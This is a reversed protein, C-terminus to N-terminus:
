DDCVDVIRSTFQSTTPQEDAMADCLADFTSGIEDNIRGREGTGIWELYNMTSQGLWANDSVARVAPFELWVEYHAVAADRVRNLDGLDSELLVQSRLSTVLPRTTSWVEGAFVNGEIWQTPSIVQELFFEEDVGNM